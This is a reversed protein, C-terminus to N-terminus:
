RQKELEIVYYILTPIKVFRPPLVPLLFRRIFELADLIMLKIKGVDKYDKWKFTVNDDEVKVIRHNSIAIRHTYNGLYKM